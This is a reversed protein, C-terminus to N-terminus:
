RIPVRCIIRVFCLSRERETKSRLPNRYLRRGRNIPRIDTRDLFDLIQALIVSLEDEGLDKVVYVGDPRKGLEEPDLIILGFDPALNTLDQKCLIENAM